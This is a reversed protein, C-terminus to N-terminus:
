PYDVQYVLELFTHAVFCLEWYRLVEQKKRQQCDELGLEQKEDRFLHEIPDRLIYPQLIKQAQTWNLKNSVFIRPEGNLDPNDYAIVVRLKKWFKVKM